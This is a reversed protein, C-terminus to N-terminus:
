KLKIKTYQRTVCLPISKEGTAKDSMIYVDGHDLNFGKESRSVVTVSGSTTYRSLRVDIVLRRETDAVKECIVKM